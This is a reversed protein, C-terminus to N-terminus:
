EDNIRLRAKLATVDLDLVRKRQGIGARQSVDSVDFAAHAIEVRRADEGLLLPKQSAHPVAVDQVGRKKRADYDERGFEGPRYWLAVTECRYSPQVTYKSVRSCGSNFYYWGERYRRSNLRQPM